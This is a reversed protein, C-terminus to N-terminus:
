EEDEGIQIQGPFRENIQEEIRFAEDMPRYLFFMALFLIYWVNLFPVLFASWPLLLFTILWWAAQLVAVGLCRVLHFLLFGVANKLRVATRQDFLVVQPWWLSAVALYVVASLLLLGLTGWSIAPGAWWLLAGSFILLGLFVCTVAGPLLSAKWNQAMSKKYCAWWDDKNDRLRRLLIDYMCAIGPGAIAGGVVGAALAVLISKSLIAYVMGLGYPILFTLALFGVLFFEKFNKELLEKYRAFGVARVGTFRKEDDPFFLGM